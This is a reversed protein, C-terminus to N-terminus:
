VFEVVSLVPIEGVGPQIDEAPEILRHDEEGAALSVAETIWSRRFVGGPVAARRFLDVLEARVAAAAIAPALQLRVNVLVM